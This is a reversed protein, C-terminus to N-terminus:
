RRLMKLRSHNNRSSRDLMVQGRSFRTSCRTDLKPAPTASSIINPSRLCQHDKQKKWRLLSPTAPFKLNRCPTSLDLVGIIKGRQCNITTNTPSGAMYKSFLKNGQDIPRMVARCCSNKQCNQADIAASCQLLKAKTLRSSLRAPLRRDSM